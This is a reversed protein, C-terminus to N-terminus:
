LEEWDLFISMLKSYSYLSILSLPNLKGLCQSINKSGNNFTFTGKPCSTCLGVQATYPNYTDHPCPACSGDNIDFYTGAPCNELIFFFFVLYIIVVDVSIFCIFQVSHLPDTKYISQSM